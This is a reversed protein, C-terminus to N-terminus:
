GERPQAAPPSPAPPAPEAVLREGLLREVEHIVAWGPGAVLVKGEPDVLCLYPRAGAGHDLAFGGGPDHAVRWTVGQARALEVLLERPRDGDVEALAVLLFGPDAGYRAQLPGLKRETFARSGPNRPAGRPRAVRDLDREARRAREV